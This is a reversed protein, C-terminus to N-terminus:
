LVSAYMFNSQFSWAMWSNNMRAPCGNPKLGRKLLGSRKSQNVARENGSRDAAVSASILAEVSTFRRDSSAFTPQICEQKGARWAAKIIRYGKDLINSFPIYEGAVIDDEAFKKQQELIGAKEQYFSDSTGGVWLEAVGMWGSLQLFVGGKACNMSYYSSYTTRQNKASGPKFNFAINTDDWMVIRKKAYKADWKEKRLAKDEEYSVYTPWSSQCCLVLYTKHDFIKYVSRMSATRFM